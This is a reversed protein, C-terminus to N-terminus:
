PTAAPGISEIPELDPDTTIPIEHLVTDDAANFVQLVTADGPDPAVRHSSRIVAGGLSQPPADDEFASTPRTLIEDALETATGGFEEFSRNRISFHGVKVGVVSTGDVIGDTIVVFFDHGAAFFTADASTDIKWIHFGTRSDHDVSLTIGSDDETTGDDRYVKLAPTGPSGAGDLTIPAGSTDRTNFAGFASAGVVIDGSYRM